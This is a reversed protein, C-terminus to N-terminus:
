FLSIAVEHEYDLVIEPIAQALEKQMSTSTKFCELLKGVLESPQVLKGIWKFQTIILKAIDDRFEEIM